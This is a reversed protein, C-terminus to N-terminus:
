HMMMSVSLDVLVSHHFLSFWHFREVNFKIINDYVPYFTCGLERKLPIKTNCYQNINMSTEVVRSMM